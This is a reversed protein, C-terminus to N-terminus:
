MNSWKSYTVPSSTLDTRKTSERWTLSAAKLDGLAAQARAPQVVAHPGHAQRLLGQLQEALPGGASVGEPLFEVFVHTADHTKNHSRTALRVPSTASGTTMRPVAAVIVMPESPM